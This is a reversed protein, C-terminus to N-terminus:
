LPHFLICVTVSSSAFVFKPPRISAAAVAREATFFILGEHVAASLAMLLERFIAGDTATRIQEIDVDIVVSEDGHLCCLFIFGSYEAYFDM